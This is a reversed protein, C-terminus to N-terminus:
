DGVIFTELSVGNTDTSQIITGQISNTSIVEASSDQFTISITGATELVHGTADNALRKDLNEQASYVSQTKYGQNFMSYISNPFISVTLAFVVVLISLALLIEILTMGRNSRLKKKM